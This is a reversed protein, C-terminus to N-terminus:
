RFLGRYEQSWWILPSTGRRSLPLCMHSLAAISVTSLQVLAFQAGHATAEDIVSAADARPDHIPFIMSGDARRGSGEPRGPPMKWRQSGCTWVKEGWVDDSGSRGFLQVTSCAFDSIM